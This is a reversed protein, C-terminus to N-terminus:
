PQIQNTWLFQWTAIANITLSVAFLSVEPLSLRTAVGRVYNSWSSEPVRHIASDTRFEDGADLNM